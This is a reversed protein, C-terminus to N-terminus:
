RGKRFWPFLCDEDFENSCTSGYCTCDCEYDTEPQTSDDAVQEPSVTRAEAVASARADSPDTPRPMVESVLKTIRTPCIGLRSMVWGGVCAQYRASNFFGDFPILEVDHGGCDVSVNIPHVIGWKAFTLLGPDDLRMLQVRPEVLRDLHHPEVDLLRVWLESPLTEFLDLEAFVEGHKAALCSERLQEMEVRVAKHLTMAASFQELGLDLTQLTQDELVCPAEADDSLEEDDPTSAQNRTDHTRYVNEVHRRAPAWEGRELELQSRYARIQDTDMFAGTREDLVRLGSPHEQVEFRRCHRMEAEIFDGLESHYPIPRGSHRRTGAGGTRRTPSACPTTSTTGHM